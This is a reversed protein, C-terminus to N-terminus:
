FNGLRALSMPFAADCFYQHFVEKMNPNLSELKLNSFNHGTILQTQRMCSPLLMLLCPCRSRLYTKRPDSALAHEFCANIFSHLGQCLRMNGENAVNERTPINRSQLLLDRLYDDDSITTTRGRAAACRSITNGPATARRSFQDVLPRIKPIKDSTLAASKSMANWTEDSGGGQIHEDYRELAKKQSHLFRWLPTSSAPNLHGKSQLFSKADAVSCNWNFIRQSPTNDSVRAAPKQQATDQGSSKKHPNRYARGGKKKTGVLLPATQPKALSADQGSPKKNPNRYATGGTKKTDLSSGFSRSKEYPNHSRCTATRQAQENKYSVLSAEIAM